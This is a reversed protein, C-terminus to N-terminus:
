HFQLDLHDSILILILAGWFISKGILCGYFRTNCSGLVQNFIVDIGAFKNFLDIVTEREVVFV